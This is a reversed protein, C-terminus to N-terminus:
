ADNGHWHRCGKGVSFGYSRERWQVGADAIIELLKDMCAEYEHGRRSNNGAGYGFWVGRM